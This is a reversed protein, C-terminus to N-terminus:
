TVKFNIIDVFLNVISQKRVLAGPTACSLRGLRAVATDNARNAFVM